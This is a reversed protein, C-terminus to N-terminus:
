RISLVYYLRAILSHSAIYIFEALLLLLDVEIWGKLNSIHPLLPRNRHNRSELLMDM